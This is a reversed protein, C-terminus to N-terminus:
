RRGAFARRLWFEIRGLLESHVGNYFHDAGAIIALQLKAGFRANEELREPLGAFAPNQRLEITGFTFLSPVVLQDVYKLVNYREAPGYKDVYGAATVLYPLPFRVSMLTDAQGAELHAEAATLEQQFLEAEQSQLFHGYSLRPPSIAILAAVTPPTEHALSYVAKVAGLSHGVVAIRGYGRGGLLAIWATLDFRCEDVVEYAAGFMRRGAATSAAYALDHGRTNVALVAAGWELCRPIVSAFLSSGYFNGGTGHLLLFADVGFPAPQDHAAKAYLAGDLRLGDSTTAHILEANV